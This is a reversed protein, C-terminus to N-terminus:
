FYFFDFAIIKVVNKQFVQISWLTLFILKLLKPCRTVESALSNRYSANWPDALYPEANCSDQMSHKRKFRSQISSVTSISTRKLYDSFVASDVSNSGCRRKRDFNYNNPFVSKFKEVAEQSLFVFNLCVEFNLMNQDRFNEVFTNLSSLEWSVCTNIFGFM